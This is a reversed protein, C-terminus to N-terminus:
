VSRRGGSLRQMIERETDDTFVGGHSAIYAAIEREARQQQAAIIGDYIRRWFQRRQGKEAAEAAPAAVGDCSYTLTSM